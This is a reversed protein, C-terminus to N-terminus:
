NLLDECLSLWEKFYVKGPKHYIGLSKPTGRALHIFVVNNNEDVARDIGCDAGWTNYPAPLNENEIGGDKTNLFSCHKIHNKRAYDTISDGVDMLQRGKADYQPYTNIQAFLAHPLFIGSVHLAKIRAHDRSVGIIKFGSKIKNNLSQFFASSTVLVDSHCVFVHDTTIYRKGFELGSANAESGTEKTPNFVLSINEALDKLENYYDLSSNEVVLYKITLDSPKFKECSRILYKIYEPTKFSVTLLTLEKM